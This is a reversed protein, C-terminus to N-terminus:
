LQGRRGAGRAPIHTDHHATGGHLACMEGTSSRWPTDTDIPTELQQGTLIAVVEYRQGREDTIVEGVVLKGNTPM